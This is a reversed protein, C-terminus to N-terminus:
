QSRDCGVVQVSASDASQLQGRPDGLNFALTFGGVKWTRRDLIPEGRLDQKSGVKGGEEGQEELGGFNSNDKM